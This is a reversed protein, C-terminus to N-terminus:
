ALRGVNLVRLYPLWLPICTGAGPFECLFVVQNTKVSDARGPFLRNASRDSCHSLLPMFFGSVIARVRKAAPIKGSPIVRACCGGAVFEGCVGAALGCVEGCAPEACVGAVFAGLPVVGAFVGVADVAFFGM